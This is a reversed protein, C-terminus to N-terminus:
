TDSPPKENNNSIALEDIGQQLDAHTDEATTSKSIKKDGRRKSKKGM